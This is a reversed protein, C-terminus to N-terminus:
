VNVPGNILNMARNVYEKDCYTCKCGFGIYGRMAAQWGTLSNYGCRKCQSSQCGATGYRDYYHKLITVGCEINKSEDRLDDMTMKCEYAGTSPMVQMVGIAGAPSIRNQHFRSEVYGIVIAVETKVGQEQAESKIIEVVKKQDDTLKAINLEDLNYNELVAEYSEREASYVKDIKYDFSIVLNFNRPEPINPNLLEFKDAVQLYCLPFIDKDGKKSLKPEEKNNIGGNIKLINGANLVYYDGIKSPEWGTCRDKSITIGNPLILRVENIKAVEGCVDGEVGGCVNEIGAIIKFLGGKEVGLVYQNTVEIIPKVFNKPAKSEVAGNPYTKEIIQKYEPIQKLVNNQDKGSRIIIKNEDAYTIVRGQLSTKGLLLGTFTTKATIPTITASLTIVNGGEFGGGTCSVDNEIRNGSTTDPTFAKGPETADEDTGKLECSYSPTM